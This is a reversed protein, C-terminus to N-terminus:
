RVKRCHFQYARHIVVLEDRHDAAFADVAEGVTSRYYGDIDDVMLIGDKKVLRWANELDVRVHSLEHCGDIYAVDYRNGDMKPLMVHSDGEFRTCHSTGGIAGVNSDFDEKFDTDVCDISGNAGLLLEWLFWCASLGQFSGVELMRLGDRRRFEALTDKLTPINHSFWDMSFQMQRSEPATWGYLGLAERHVRAAGDVDGFEALTNGLETLARASNPSESVSKELAAITRGIIRSGKEAERCLSEAETSRGEDAALRCVLAAARFGRRDLLRRVLRQRVAAPKADLARRYGPLRRALADRDLSGLGARWARHAATELLSLAPDFDSERTALDALIKNSGDFQELEILSRALDYHLWPEANGQRICWKFADAALHWRRHRLHTKGLAMVHGANVRTASAADDRRSPHTMGRVADPVGRARGRRPQSSEDTAHVIGHILQSLLNGLRM